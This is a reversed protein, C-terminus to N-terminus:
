LADTIAQLQAKQEKDPAQDADIFAAGIRTLAWAQDYVSDITAALTLALDFDGAEAHGMSLMTSLVRLEVENEIGSLEDSVDSLIARAKEHMSLGNYTEAIVLQSRAHEFPDDISDAFESAVKLQVQAQEKDDILGYLRAIESLDLSMQNAGISGEMQQLLEDAKFLLDSAQERNGAKRHRDALWLKLQIRQLPNQMAKEMESAQDLAEDSRESAGAAGYNGGVEALLWAKQQPNELTTAMAEVKDLLKLAEETRDAQRYRDAVESLMWAREETDEVDDALVSARVFGASAKEENGQEAHGAAIAAETWGKDVAGQIQGAAESAQELRGARTLEVAIESLVRDRDVTEEIRSAVKLATDLAVQRDAGAEDSSPSCASLAMLLFALVATKLTLSM